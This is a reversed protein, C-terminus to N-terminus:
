QVEWHVLFTTLLNVIGAVPGAERGPVRGLALHVLATGVVHRHQADGLVLARGQGLDGEVIVGILNGTIM